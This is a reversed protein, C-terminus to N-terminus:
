PRPTAEDRGGALEPFWRGMEIEFSSFYTLWWAALVVLLWTKRKGFRATATEGIGPTLLGSERAFRELLDRVFSEFEVSGLWDKVPVSFGQKGRAAISAPLLDRMAARLLHKRRLHRMRVKEPIGMVTALFEHDLFPVRAELGVAMSMKDVRMLLLEPVRFSLDLFSMWQLPSSMQSWESIEQWYGEVADWSTLDGVAKLAQRSLVAPKESDAFGEASGWFPPKGLAMRELWVRPRDDDSFGFGALYAGARLLGSPARRFFRMLAVVAQWSRYGGFLEDSGEGVQCVTVGEQRALESLFYIPVAVPDGLPEDLQRVLRPISSAFDLRSIDVEYHRAGVAEAMVRAFPYENRYSRVDGAYGVSFTRVPKPEGRAFFYANTSSDLGGSLFVGVPVDSVKHVDVSEALKSRVVELCDAWRLDTLPRAAELMNWWRRQRMRGDRYVTVATGPALKYVGRFLTRPAPSVYFSLYHFLAEEDVERGLRPDELLAKIESAFALRTSDCTYYLPKIGLRDRVLWLSDKRSDWIAFAFMGRLRELCSEGWEEYARLVVETDSHDTKWRFKGTSELEERLSAANYIEGNYVLVVTEDDNTMPQSASDSLDVISLRRHGLFVGSTPDSWSGAGDPGRHELVETMRAAVQGAGGPYVRHPEDFTLLGAIGCMPDGSARTPSRRGALPASGWPLHTM